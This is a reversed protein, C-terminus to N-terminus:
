HYDQDTRVNMQTHVVSKAFELVGAQNLLNQHPEGLLVSGGRSNGEQLAAERALTEVINRGMGRRHHIPQIRWVSVCGDECRHLHFGRGENAASCEPSSPPREQRLPSLRATSPAPQEAAGRERLPHQQVPEQRVEANVGALAPAPMLRSSASPSGAFQPLRLGRGPDGQRGETPQNCRM